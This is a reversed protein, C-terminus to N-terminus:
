VIFQGAHLVGESRVIMLFPESSTVKVQLPFLWALPQTTSYPVAASKVPAVVTLAVVFLVVRAPRVGSM